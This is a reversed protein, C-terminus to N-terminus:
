PRQTKSVENGSVGLSADVFTVTLNTDCTDNFVPTGFAPAAPCQITADAPCSTVTPASSDIVTITQSCTVSNTHADTATWTRQTKSVENGSVGLSADVFTVTLNTDSTDSFVPTGFAPTAPCQITADAPCSTVTPASSDIVTITQSCTVSNTHADTATWTRQTKSVENGSVGLSADVFTVTLNTDCTDNFVPTGFVPTAPCQITADAPCSTVTPASSDIVTITQSCTVSNTHADTATWTRQTKSVENGSVGLSADVFTVTLNTDCTDSFVPTGFVPTAPCEITADAPCSTVTPATSDIVTITQSCTVSNTHADTATWTRQTKSVENGSVGLSADVFTVTLNTDCTDSFVPTGFVPTAPCEITADAPCSTVTPASSDIVTITQSCTVSNTHADTATWTRQTKSVENGSVGLSADVFTVTLNTDCTDSFVPTGFVPTAPCQITADAPCSTVTPASSDIVTITQSCSVSKTHADTATWTRQTKSVENGSVGLSADVFTVTLNTDCTDSFVPTGFVPAAPCQITADAPCSTVTPASSDIVTITQSCTVSNTHADTATW